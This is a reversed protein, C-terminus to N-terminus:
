FVIFRHKITDWSVSSIVPLNNLKSLLDYLAGVTIVEIVEEVQLKNFDERLSAGKKPHRNDALSLFVAELSYSIIRKLLISGRNSRNANTQILRRVSTDSKFTLQRNGEFLVVIEKAEKNEELTLVQFREKKKSKDDFLWAPVFIKLSSVTLRSKSSAYSITVRVLPILAL